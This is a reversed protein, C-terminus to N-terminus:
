YSLHGDFHIKYQHSKIYYHVRMSTLAISQDKEYEINVVSMNSVSMNRTVENRPESLKTYNTDSLVPM